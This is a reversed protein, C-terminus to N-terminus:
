IWVLGIAVLGVVIATLTVPWGAKLFDSFRYGALGMVLTNNHHGIPTLFDISAGLAVAILFPEPPLGASDAIGIAIPGLVIATSANNVFPTTLVALALVAAVLVLPEDAPLLAVLASAVVGAAGTTEVALGLPIMAALMILIPWDLAALGQRLNLVRTAALVLVVLGFALPPALRFAALLIGAAFAVIPIWPKTTPQREPMPWLALLEAEDIAEAIADREGRLYLIDGIGLQVDDLGGEIRPSRAAVAIVGVGRVQFSELSGVHSGVLTSEPMVVAEVRDGSGPSPLALSGTGLWEDLRPLDTELLVVDGAALRTEPRQFFVAVGGRRLGHIRAPFEAAAVGAFPSGPPLVTEAVVVRGAHAPVRRSATAQERGLPRRAWLLIAVLGAIAAPIGAWAFDFFAFGRGTREALQHSVLLNAPTGIVSCLGGLLAAFSVPMLMRRADFGGVRAVSTVVPIM